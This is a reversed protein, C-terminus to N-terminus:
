VTEHLVGARQLGMMVTPILVLQLLIGPIANLFAGAVFMEWTFATGGLGLLIGLCILLLQLRLGLRGRLLFGCGFM